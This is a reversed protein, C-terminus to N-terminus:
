YSGTAGSAYSGTAGGFSKSEQPSLSHCQLTGENTIDSTDKRASVPVKLVEATFIQKMVITARLAFRTKIDDETPMSEIVMNNYVQLRTYLTIPQGSMQLDLFEQYASKSKSPDGNYSETMKEFGPPVYVDMVDSMGIEISVRTPLQYSHDSINAGTQIPHETIVRSPYHMTKFVADFFYFTPGGTKQIEMYVLQIEDNGQPPKYGM